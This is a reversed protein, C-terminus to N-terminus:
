PRQTIIFNKSNNFAVILDSLDTGGTCDLNTAPTSGFIQLVGYVNLVDTLSVNGDQDTDGQYLSPVGGINLIQNSGYAKNLATTFDYTTSGGNFTVTSSSWTEVANVSRVVVYYPVGNAANEFYIPYQLDIGATGVVSDVIAYPSTANRLLVFVQSPSNCVEFNMTLGLIKECPGNLLTPDPGFTVSVGGGATTDFLPGPTIVNGAGNIYTYQIYNAGTADQIGVLYNAQIVSTSNDHSITINSNSGSAVPVLDICVQFTEWETALGGFLPARDFTVILRNKAADVKYSLRNIPQSTNGWNLDNWAPYIAPRVPSGAGPGPLGTAPPYWNGGDPTYAVFSIIGNTGVYIDDYEVGMFKIRKAGAVDTLLWYGDDLSGSTIPVAAVSNSVLTTSGGTDVRCYTPQSPAVSAGPTSNAFYYGGTGTGGGGYNPQIITLSQRITDNSRNEDNSLQTYVTVTYNGPLPNYSDFNVNVSSLSALSSVSKTSSYGGPSITMTVNFSETSTGVNNVTAQPTIPPSPLAIGLPPANISLSAVDHAFLNCSISSFTIRETTGVGVTTFGAVVWAVSDGRGAAKFNSRAQSNVVTSDWVECGTNFLYTKNTLTAGGIAGGTMMVGKGGGKQVFYSAMRTVAGGPYNPIASWAIDLHNAPNIVGKYSNAIAGVGDWGGACIIKNGDIGFGMMGAAVPYPTAATYTNQKINYVQM